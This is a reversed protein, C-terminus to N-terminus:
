QPAVGQQPMVDPEKGAEKGGGLSGEEATDAQFGFREAVAADTTVLCADDGVATSADLVVGAGKLVRLADTAGELAAIMDDITKAGTTLGKSRWTFVYRPTCSMDNQQKVPSQQGETPIQRHEHAM